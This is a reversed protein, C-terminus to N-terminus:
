VPWVQGTTQSGYRHFGIAYEIVPIVANTDKGLLTADVIGADQKIHSIQIIPTNQM